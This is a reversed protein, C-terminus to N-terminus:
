NIEKEIILNGKSELIGLRTYLNKARSNKNQIGQFLKFGRSKYEWFIEELVVTGVGRNQFESKIAMEEGFIIEGPCWQYPNLVIFGVLEGEYIIKWIDCYRSFVDMKAIGKELTWPENYPPKSYEEAYIRALERFDEEVAPKIEVNMKNKM